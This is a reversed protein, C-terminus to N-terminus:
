GVPQVVPLSRAAAPPALLGFSASLAQFRAVADPRLAYYINLGVRRTSVWGAERLVKLHHSVTPQAVECCATFDCACIEDGAILQRIIALRTPDAAGQLLRSDPDTTRPM